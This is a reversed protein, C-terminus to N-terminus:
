VSNVYIDCIGLLSAIDSTASGTSGALPRAVGLLLSRSLSTM